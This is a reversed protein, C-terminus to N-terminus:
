QYKGIPLNKTLAGDLLIQSGGYEEAGINTVLLSSHGVSAQEIFQPKPTERATDSFTAMFGRLGAHCQIFSVYM